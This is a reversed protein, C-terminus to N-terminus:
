MHGGFCPGWCALCTRCLKVPTGRPGKLLDAVETTPLSEVSKDNVSLIVDGPRLFNGGWAQAVLNISETTGRTFIVEDASAAGIYDARSVPNAELRDRADVGHNDM